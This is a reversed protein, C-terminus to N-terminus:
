SFCENALLCSIYVYRESTIFYEIGIQGTTESTEIYTFRVNSNDCDAYTLVTAPRGSGPANEYSCETTLGTNPDYFTFSVESIGTSSYYTVDTLNQIQWDQVQGYVVSGFFGSTAALLYTLKM